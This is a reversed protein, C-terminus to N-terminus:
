KGNKLQERCHKWSPYHNDLIAYFRQNHGAELLHALEHVVVYEICEVPYAGLWVSISINGSRINCSGWQSRTDRISIKACRVGLRSEWKKFLEPLIKQLRKHYREMEQVKPYEPHEQLKKQHKEVWRQIRPQELVELADNYSMVYPISMCIVDPQAPKISLNTNKIKKKTVQITFHKWHYTKSM